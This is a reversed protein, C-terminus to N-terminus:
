YPPLAATELAARLGTEVAGNMYGQWRLSTHEGAFAVRGFPRALWDRWLPDYAPGFFAYGGRAWPDDEWVITRSALPRTPRGLWKLRDVVGDTGSTELITQLERSAGGGALLSLIAAGKQQENGDWVAGIPQDSGYANPKGRQSWFRRDFQLLVRTAAGSRLGAIADRQASPLDPEFLVERLTSVPLAVVLHDARIEALRGAGSEVSATVGGTTQRVRRLIIRTRVHKRLRRAAETAIRDNGDRIRFSAPRAGDNVDAFFDVLALLSLDEPDALFLGRLARYRQKTSPSAGCAELWSAVSRRALGAAIPGDWRHEALQYDRVLPAIHEAMARFGATMSQRTLRGRPDAGYYGFGRRIIQTTELGLERALDLLARHDGDIFDAGGEAHQHQAFGDRITWVRGGVRERAEIVTVVFGRAELARAAALGALGAGAVLVSRSM